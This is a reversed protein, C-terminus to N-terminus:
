AAAKERPPQAADLLPLRELLRELTVVMALPPPTRTGNEYYELARPSIGLIKAAHKRPLAGRRRRLETKFTATKMASVEHKLTRADVKKLM